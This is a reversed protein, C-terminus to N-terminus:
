ERYQTAIDQSSLPPNEEIFKDVFTVFDPHFFGLEKHLKWRDLFDELGLTVRLHQQYAFYLKEDLYGESYQYWQNEYSRMARVFYQQRMLTEAPTREDPSKTSVEALNQSFNLQNRLDVQVSQVTQARIAATNQGLEMGVFILSVVM